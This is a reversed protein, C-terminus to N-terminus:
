SASNTDADNTKEKPLTVRCFDRSQYPGQKVWAKAEELTAVSEGIPTPSSHMCGDVDELLVYIHDMVEGGSKQMKELAVIANVRAQSPQRRYSTM